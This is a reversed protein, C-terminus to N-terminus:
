LEENKNCKMKCDCTYSQLHPTVIIRSAFFFQELDLDFGQYEDLLAKPVYLSLDDIQCKQDQPEPAEFFIRFNAGHCGREALVLRPQRNRSAYFGVKKSLYDRAQPSISVAM